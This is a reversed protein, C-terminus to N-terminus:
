RDLQIKSLGGEVELLESGIFPISGGVGEKGHFHEVGSSCQRDPAHTLTIWCCQQRTHTLPRTNPPSPM